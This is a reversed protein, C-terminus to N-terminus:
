GAHFITPSFVRQLALGINDPRNLKQHQCIVCQQFPMSHSSTRLASIAWLDVPGAPMEHTMLTLLFVFASRNTQFFKWVQRSQTLM